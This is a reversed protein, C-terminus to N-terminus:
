CVFFVRITTKVMKATVLVVRANDCSAVRELKRVIQVRSVKM